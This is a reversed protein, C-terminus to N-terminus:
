MTCPCPGMPVLAIRDLFKAVGWYGSHLQGGDGLRRVGFGAQQDGFTDSDGINSSVKITGSIIDKM